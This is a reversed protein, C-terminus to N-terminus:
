KRYTVVVLEYPVRLVESNSYLYSTTYLLSKPLLTPMLLHYLFPQSLIKRSISLPCALHYIGSHQDLINGKNQLLKKEQQNSM